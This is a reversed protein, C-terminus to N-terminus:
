RNSKGTIRGPSLKATQAFDFSTSPCVVIKNLVVQCCADSQSWFSADTLYVVASITASSGPNVKLEYNNDGTSAWRQVDGSGVSSWKYGVAPHDSALNVKANFVCAGNDRNRTDNVALESNAMFNSDSCPRYPAIKRICNNDHDAVYVNGSADVSTGTPFNLQAAMSQYGDGAHGNGLM